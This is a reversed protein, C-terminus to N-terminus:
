INFAPGKSATSGKSTTSFKWMTSNSKENELFPDQNYQNICIYGFNCFFRFHMRLMSMWSYAAAVKLCDAHTQASRLILCSLNFWLPTLLKTGGERDARSHQQSRRSSAKQSTFSSSPIPNLVKVFALAPFLQAALVSSSRLSQCVSISVCM